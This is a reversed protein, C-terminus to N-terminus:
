HNRKQHKGNNLRALVTYIAELTYIDSNQLEKIILNILNKKM